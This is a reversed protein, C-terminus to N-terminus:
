IGGDWCFFVDGPRRKKYRLGLLLWLALRLLEVVWRALGMGRM